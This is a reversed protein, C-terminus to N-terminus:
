ESENTGEGGIKLGRFCFWVILNIKKLVVTEKFM